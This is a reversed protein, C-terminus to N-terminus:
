CTKGDNFFVIGLTNAGCHSAVTGSTITQYIEKFGMEECVRIAASLMEETASSYTIFVRSLDPTNYEAFLDTAYKSVVSGMQGKYKKDTSMKGGKLVIRPRIKLLNAGLLQISNCRGGKHLYDLREVVFSVQVNKIRNTVMDVIEQPTKGADVLECAYIALIGIGTTLSLSDIVYVNEINSAARIANGCSSTIGSSMSLHIVADYDKLLNEFYETYEFENIANTKPLTKYKEVLEFLEPNTYKGDTFNLESLVIEFPIVKIDYKNLLDKSLDNTSEVSIAIRM